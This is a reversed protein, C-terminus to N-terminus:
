HFCYQGHDGQGVQGLTRALEGEDGQETLEPGEWEEDVHVDNISCRGIFPDDPCNDREQKAIWVTNCPAMGREVISAYALLSSEYGM